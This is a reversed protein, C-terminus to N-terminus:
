YLGGSSSNNNSSPSSSSSPAPASQNTASPKAVKFNDVGDGTVQGQGDSVFYYLPMGNYTYQIEGDDARKITGMGAPLNTTSDKDVYAPWDVLCSGSCNSVGSSDAGYTYLTKGSPDALYQGLSPDTKTLLAANNVAPASSTTNTTIPTTKSPTHFILYGGGIIVVATVVAIIAKKM